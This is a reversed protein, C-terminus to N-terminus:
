APPVGAPPKEAPAEGFNIKISGNDIGQLLESWNRVDQRLEPPLQNFARKAARTAEVAQQLDITYDVATNMPRTGAPAIGHRSLIWDLSTEIKQEQRVIKPDDSCDIKERYKNRQTPTESQRRFM